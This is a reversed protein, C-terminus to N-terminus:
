NQEEKLWNEAFIRGSDKEELKLYKDLLDRQWPLENDTFYGLLWPNDKNKILAKCTEKCYTEFEKDFIFPCDGPYGTHGPQQYTGGRKKGYGSMLSLLKTSVLKVQAKALVEDDSWGGTGNFGIESIMSSTSLAWNNKDKFNIEFASKAGPSSLIANVSALGRHIFRGGEPDIIWWRNKIKETRFFGTTKFKPQSLGGYIDLGKDLSILPLDKLIRTPQSIFKEEPKRAVEVTIEAGVNIQLLGLIFITIKKM